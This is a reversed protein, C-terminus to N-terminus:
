SGDSRQVAKQAHATEGLVIREFRGPMGVRQELALTREISGLEFMDQPVRDASIPLAAGDLPVEVMLFPEAGRIAGPGTLLQRGDHHVPRQKSRSFPNSADQDLVM